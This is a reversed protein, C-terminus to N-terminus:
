MRQTHTLQNAHGKNYMKRFEKSLKKQEKNRKNMAMREYKSMRRRTWGMGMQTLTVLCRTTTTTKEDDNSINPMNDIELSSVGDTEKPPPKPLSTSSQPEILQNPLVPPITQPFYPNGFSGPLTPWHKYYAAYQSYPDPYMPPPFHPNFYQPPPYPYPQSPSPLQYFPDRLDRPHSSQHGPSRSCRRRNPSHRHPSYSDRGRYSSNSNQRRYPSHSDRTRYPSHSTRRRYPSRSGRHRRSRDTSSPSRHRHSTDDSKRRKIPSKRRLPSSSSSSSTSSSSSARTHHTPSYKEREDKPQREFEQLTKINNTKDEEDQQRKGYLREQTRDALKSMEDTGLSLGLSDLINKLHKQQENSNPLPELRIKEVPLSSLSSTKDLTEGVNQRCKPSHSMSDADDNAMEKLKNIDVGKNLIDLFRMFGQSGKKEEEVPVTNIQPPPPASFVPMQEFHQTEVPRDVFRQELALKVRHKLPHDHQINISSRRTKSVPDKTKIFRNRQMLIGKVRDRLPENSERERAVVTCIGPNVKKHHSGMLIVKLSMKQSKKQVPGIKLPAALNTGSRIHAGAAVLQHDPPSQTNLAVVGSM